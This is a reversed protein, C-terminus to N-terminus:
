IVSFFSDAYESLLVSVQAEDKWHKEVENDTVAYEILGKVEHVASFLKESLWARFARRMSLSTGISTFFDKYTLADRFAREIIKDLALEEYIDHTIFYKGTNSDRKIIEDAELLPLIEDDRDEAEVFFTGENARKHAIKLFCKERKIHTNKQSHSGQVMKNWLINKFDSLTATLPFGQYNQVYENLYFLSGILELLREDQPLPFQYTEALEKIEKPDLREIIHLTFPLRYINLFHIKLNELFSYRTTFIITWNSRVLASLFEQFVEQNDLDSLREASDIVMYKEKAEKHEDIFDSFTFPGYNQFLQNIHSINFATAKFAFFPKEDKVEDYLDKVVATKGVGAEGSLIILSRQESVAKLEEVRRTRDIKIERGNLEMKSHIPVFLRETSQHLEEIFDVISKGLSFFYQALNKNRDLALQAEFHSLVKWEIQVGQRGAFEEIEIQYKPEERGPERSRSFEQNLYFIIHQLGPNGSKAIRISEKIDKVNESIKTDYFKAQFAVQKGNVPIPKTEIGPQNKYRFIGYPKGFEDCFLHYSLSEFSKQEKKDFKARFNGWNVEQM